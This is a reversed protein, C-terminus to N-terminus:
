YSLNSIILGPNTELHLEKVLLIELSNVPKILFDHPLASLQLTLM